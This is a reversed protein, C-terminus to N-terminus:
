AAVFAALSIAFGPFKKLLEKDETVLPVGLTQAVAVFQADYATIRHTTAISLTRLPDPHQEHASLRLVAAHWASEAVRLDFSGLRVSTALVNLFEDRWLRPAAWNPDRRFCADAHASLPGAVCLASIVNTDVAIV